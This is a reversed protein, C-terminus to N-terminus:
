RQNERGGIDDIDMLAPRDDISWSGPLAFYAREDHGDLGAVVVAAIFRVVM